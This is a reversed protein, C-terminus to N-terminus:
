GGARAYGTAAGLLASKLGGGSALGGAAGIGAAALPQLGPIFAAAIPAAKALFKFAKKFFFEPYGTEPNIKNAPDGVTFEALDAQNQAFLAQLMELVQPDDLFSRPIVVEGLSLHAMVTDTGRGADEPALIEQEM